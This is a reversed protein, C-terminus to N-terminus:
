DKKKGEEGLKERRKRSKNLILMQVIQFMNSSVWYIAFAATYMSTFWISMIPMISNFGKMRDSQEETQGGTMLKSQYYSTIGALFPLIFLGNWDTSGLTIPKGYIDLIPSDPAWINKIWLFAEVSQNEIHYNSIQRLAAFLAITVPIQILAPLCGGLPNINHKQYLEM